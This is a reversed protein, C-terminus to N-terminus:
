AAHHFEQIFPGIAAERAALGRVGFHDFVRAFPWQPAALACFGDPRVLVLARTPQGFAKFVAGLRDELLLVGTPLGPTDAGIERTVVLLQLFPLDARREDTWGAALEQAAAPTLRDIVLLLTYLTGHLLGALPRYGSAGPAQPV